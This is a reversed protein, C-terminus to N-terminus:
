MVCNLGSYNMLSYSGTDDDFSNDYM